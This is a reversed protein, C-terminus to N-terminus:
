PWVNAALALLLAAIFAGRQGLGLRRAAVFVLPTLDPMAVITISRVGVSSRGTYPARTIIETGTTTSIM